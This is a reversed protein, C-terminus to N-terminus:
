LDVGSFRNQLQQKIQQSLQRMLPPNNFVARIQEKELTRVYDPTFKAAQEQLAKAGADAAPAATTAAAPKTQPAYPQSYAQRLGESGVSEMVSRYDNGRIGGLSAPASATPNVPSPASAPASSPKQIAPAAAAAAKASSGFVRKADVLRQLMQFKIPDASDKQAALVKDYVSQDRAAQDIFDTLTKRQEANGSPLANRVYLETAQTVASQGASKGEPTSAFEQLTMNGPALPVPRGGQIEPHSFAGTITLTNPDLYPKLAKVGQVAVDHAVRGSESPTLGYLAAREAYVQGSAIQDASLKVDGKQAITEFASMAQDVASPPAKGAKSGGSGSSGGAGRPRLDVVDGTDPDVYMGNSLRPEGQAIVRGTPTVWKEGPKVMKAGAADQLSMQRAYAESMMSPNVYAEAGTDTTIKIARGAIPQGAFDVAGETKPINVLQSSVPNGMGGADILGSKTLHGMVSTLGKTDGYALARGGLEMLGTLAASATQASQLHQTIDSDKLIQPLQERAKDLKQGEIDQAIQANDLKQGDAALKKTRLENVQPRIAEMDKLDQTQSALQQQKLADENGWLGQARDRNADVWADDKANREVQRVANLGGFFGRYAGEIGPGLNAGM